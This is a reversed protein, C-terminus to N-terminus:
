IFDQNIHLCAAEVVNQAEQMKSIPNVHSKAPVKVGFATGTQMSLGTNNYADKPRDIEEAPRFGLSRWWNVFRRAYEDTNTIEDSQKISFIHAEFSLLAAPVLDLITMGRGSKMVVGAQWTEDKRWNEQFLRGCEAFSIMPKLKRAPQIGFCPKIESKSKPKPKECTRAVVEEEQKINKEEISEKVRSYEERSQTSKASKKRTKTAIVGSKKDNKSCYSQLLLYKSDEDTQNDINKGRVSFYHKQVEVSTLIHHKEYMETDFFGNEVAFEVMKKLQSEDIRLEGSLHYLYIDDAIIYFGNTYIDSILAFYFLFGEAGFSRRLSQIHYQKLMTTEITFYDLGNKIPRAM